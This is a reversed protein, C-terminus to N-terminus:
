WRALRVIVQAATPMGRGNDQKPALWSRETKGGCTRYHTHKGTDIEYCMRALYRRARAQQDETVSDELNKALSAGHPIQVSADVIQCAKAFLLSIEEVLKQIMSM